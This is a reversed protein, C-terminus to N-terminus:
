GTLTASAQRSRRLGDRRTPMLTATRSAVSRAIRVFLTLCHRAVARRKLQRQRAARRRYFDFDLTGDSLRHIEPSHIM